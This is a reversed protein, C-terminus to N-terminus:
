LTPYKMSVPPEDRNQAPSIHRFLFDVIIMLGHVPAILPDRYLYRYILYQQWTRSLFASERRILSEFWPMWM